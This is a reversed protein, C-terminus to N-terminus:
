KKPPQNSPQPPPQEVFRYTMLTCSIQLLSTEKQRTMTISEVKLIRNLKSISDLFVELKNFSGVVDLRIPIAAYFDRGQEAQPQFLINELGVEAGLLSVNELLGPIEKQDPLLSLLQNFEAHSQALEKELVAVQAAAQKLTVLKNKQTTINTTLSKIRADQDQYQFFYFSAGLVLFTGVFLLAKHAPTLALIKEQLAAAQIAINKKMIM